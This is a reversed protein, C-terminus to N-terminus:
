HLDWDPALHLNLLFGFSCTICQLFFVSTAAFVIRATISSLIGFSVIEVGVVESTHIRAVPFLYEPTALLNLPQFLLSLSCSLYAYCPAWYTLLVPSPFAFFAELNLRGRRWDITIPVNWTFWAWSKLRLAGKMATSLISISDPVRGGCVVSSTTSTRSLCFYVQKCWTRYLLVDHLSISQNASTTRKRHLHPIQGAVQVSSFLIVGIM